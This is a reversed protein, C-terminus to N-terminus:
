HLRGLAKLRLLVFLITLQIIGIVAYQGWTPRGDDGIILAMFITCYGAFPLFVIKSRALLLVGALAMCGFMSAIGWLEFPRPFSNRFSAWHWAMLVMMASGLALLVLAIAVRLVPDLLFQGLSEVSSPDVVIAKPAQYPNMSM